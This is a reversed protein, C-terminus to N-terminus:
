GAIDVGEKVLKGFGNMRDGSWEGKYYGGESWEYM